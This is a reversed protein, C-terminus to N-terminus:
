LVGSLIVTNNNQIYEEIERRTKVFRIKWFPSLFFDMPMLVCLCISVFVMGNLMKGDDGKEVNERQREAMKTKVFIITIFVRCM